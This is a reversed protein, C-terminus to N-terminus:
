KCIFSCMYLYLTMLLFSFAYLFLNLTYKGGGDRSSTLSRDSKVAGKGAAQVLRPVRPSLSSLKGNMSSPLSHRRTTGNKDIVDQSFRPSGQGRLKAKASETPAMYSPVKPSSHLGNEQHDIKAPLSARRQSNKQNENCTQDDNSNSEKATVQLDEIEGNSEPQLDIAPHDLLEDVPGDVEPMKLTTDADSQKSVSVAIDTAKDASDGIGHVSVDPVASGSVKQCRKPKENDVEVRESVERTSSPVKRLNRKVKEMDNQPHEHVSDAPHSSVKRPNRKLKESESISRSSSNEVHSSSSKRVNRKSMGKENEITQSNGRKTQSKSHINRKSQSHPEWFRSKTWRELWQWASNPEGPDYHLCLPKATPLSALLQCSHFDIYILIAFPLSNLSHLSLGCLAGLFIPIFM